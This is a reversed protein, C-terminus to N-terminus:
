SHNPHAQKLFIEFSSGKENVNDLKITGGMLHIYQKIIPLGLGTGVEGKTGLSTTRENEDFILHKKDSDIGIGFDRIVIAILNNDLSKASIIIKDNEFSFKIANSILNAIVQNKLWQKNAYFHLGRIESISILLRLKKEQLKDDFVTAIQELIELLDACSLIEVQEDLNTIHKSKAEQLIQRISETATQMKRIRSDKQEMFFDTKQALINTNSLIVQLPNSIDHTLTSLKNQNEKLLIEVHFSKTKLDELAIKLKTQSEELEVTRNFVLDELSLKNEHAIKELIFVPAFFAYCFYFGLTVSFGIAALSDNNRIFPYDLFHLGNLILFLSYIITFRNFTNRRFGNISNWFIIGSCILCYPLSYSSFNLGLLIMFISILSAIGLMMYISNFKISINNGMSYIKLFLVICVSNLNFAIFSSELSTNFIGQAVFCFLGSIWFLFLYKFLDHRFQYWLFGTFVLSMFLIFAYVYILTSVLM